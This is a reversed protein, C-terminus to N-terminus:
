ISLGTVPRPEKFVPDLSVLPGRDNPRRVSRRFMYSNSYVPVRTQISRRAKPTAILIKL